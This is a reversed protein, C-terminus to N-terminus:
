AGVKKITRQVFSHSIGLRGAIERYSLGEKRLEIVKEQQEILDIEMDKKDKLAKLVKAQYLRWSDMIRRKKDEYVEAAYQFYLDMPLPFKISDFIVFNSGVKEQYPERTLKKTTDAMKLKYIKFLGKETESVELLLDVMARPQSDIFSIHPVTIVSIILKYRGTQQVAGFVKNVEDKFDRSGIAMGADDLCLLSGEDMANFRNLYDLGEFTFNDISANPDVALMTQLTAYSKGWGRPGVIVISVSVNNKIRDKIWKYLWNPPLRTHIMTHTTVQRSPKGAFQIFLGRAAQFRLAMESHCHMSDDLNSQYRTDIEKVSKQYLDMGEEGRFMDEVLHIYRTASPYPRKIIDPMYSYRDLEEKAEEDDQMYIKYSPAKKFEIDGENDTMIPRRLM